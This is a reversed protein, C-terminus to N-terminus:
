QLTPWKLMISYESNSSLVPPGCLATKTTHPIQFGPAGPERRKKDSVQARRSLTGYDLRDDQAAAFSGWCGVTRCRQSANKGCVRPRRATLIGQLTSYVQLQHPNRAVSPIVPTNIFGSGYCRSRFHETGWTRTRVKCSLRPPLCGRFNAKPKKRWGSVSTGVGFNVRPAPLVWTLTM